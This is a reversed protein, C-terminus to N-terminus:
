GYVGAMKGAAFGMSDDNYSYSAFEDEEGKGIMSRGENQAKNNNM